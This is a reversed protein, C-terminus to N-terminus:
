FPLALPVLAVTVALTIVVLPAGIRLFDGFRYNGPELVLTNVPSSVPTLFAASSAMAVTMVFPYPSAGLDAALALAVPGMLVATATNSIFLGMLVTAMFVAALALHLSGTGVLMRLASAALDVGGTKQLAISFPLMGVILVLSPWHIARYAAAMDICRCLGLLLCGILAALLNPVAGTVMLGVTLALIALAPLAARPAPVVEDLERPLDLIVLERSHRLALINKWPGVALLTDGARLAHHAAPGPVPRGDRRLGVIALGFRSRFRSQAPTQGILPVGPRVILEVMGIEQAHDSFYRGSVPMPRLDLARCMAQMDASPDLVDLFLVDGAQLVSDAAPQLLRRGYGAGRQIGLINIGRTARLDLQDLSRGILSSWQGVLIRLERDALGYSDIWDALRPGVQPAATGGAALWRRAVLMYGVALALVPLGFPTIDFFGFGAHGQRQLLSDLVLNPATAVLTMMGSILAAVSLPMMLRGPSTGIRAAIRLVIPIFIAVVGTSSMFAGILATSAMLLAILRGESAGARAILGDGIAHAIGTRVLAEGVVFLAAILLINPDSFGSLAEDLTVIGTLPLATLMLIAVVDSRPRNLAFMAVAASLLALTIALDMNM